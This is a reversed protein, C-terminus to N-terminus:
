DTLKTLWVTVLPPPGPVTALAAQKSILLGRTPEFGPKGELIFFFRFTEEGIVRLTEINHHAKDSLPLTSSRLGGPGSNQFRHRSPLTVENM